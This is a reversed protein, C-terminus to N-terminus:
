VKLINAKAQEARRAAELQRLTEDIKPCGYRRDKELTINQVRQAMWELVIKFKCHALFTQRFIDSIGPLWALFSEVDKAQLGLNKMEGVIILQEYINKGPNKETEDLEKQVTEALRTLWDSKEATMGSKLDIATGVTVSPVDPAQPPQIIM